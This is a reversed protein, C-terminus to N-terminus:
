LPSDLLETISINMRDFASLNLEYVRPSKLTNKLPSSKIFDKRLFFGLERKVTTTTISIGRLEDAHQSELAEIMEHISLAQTADMLLFAIKRRLPSTRFLRMMERFTRVDLREELKVRM